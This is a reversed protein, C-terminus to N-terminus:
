GLSKARDWLLAKIQAAVIPTLAEIKPLAAQLQDAETMAEVGIRWDAIETAAKASEEGIKGLAEKGKLILDALFRPSKAYHPFVMAPWGAPNKGISTET